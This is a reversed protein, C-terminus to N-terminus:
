DGFLRRSMASSIGKDRYTVFQAFKPYGTEFMTRSMRADKALYIRGGADTVVRDLRNLLSLTKHGRNRFGVGITVGSSAFSLMGTLERDGFTKLVSLFSGEGSRAIEKLIEAIAYEGVKRPVVVQYEYFGKPGYIKNWDHISDLPYFFPIFHVIRTGSNRKAKQFYCENFVAVSVPNILSIPPTFPLRLSRQKPVQQQHEASFNGRMFVGRAGRLCDVWSVTHEWSGESSDSLSFFETLNTFPITETELWASPLRKLQISVECILGTLGIGGVTAAFWESNLYPGCKIEEGDTRRLVIRQVHDGFSGSRHHNKGHVDNAIAGGVTILQTGPTVPLIWGSTVALAQIDRLLVGSECRLHGSVSDFAVIRNM